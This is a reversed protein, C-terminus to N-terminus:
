EELESAKTVCLRQRTPAAVAAEEQREVLKELYPKLMVAIKALLEQWRCNSGLAGEFCQDLISLM